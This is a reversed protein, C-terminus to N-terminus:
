AKFLYLFLGMLAAGLCMVGLGAPILILWPPLGGKEKRRAVDEDGEDRV